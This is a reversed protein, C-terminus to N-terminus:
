ETVKGLRGELGPHQGTHLAGFPEGNEPRSVSKALLPFLPIHAPLLFIHGPRPEGCRDCQLAEGVVIEGVGPLVCEM